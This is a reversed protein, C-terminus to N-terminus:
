EYILNFEDLWAWFYDNPASWEHFPACVHGVYERGKYIIRFKNFGTKM